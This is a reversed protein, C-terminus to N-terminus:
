AADVTEVPGGLIVPQPPLPPEILEGVFALLEDVRLAEQNATRRASGPAVTGVFAKRVPRDFRGDDLANTLWGRASAAANLDGLAQGLESLAVLAREKAREQEVDLAAAWTEAHARITETADMAAADAALSLASATRQASDVKQRTKAVATSISPASQGSRIARAAAEVDAAEAVERDHQAATLQDRAERSRVGLAVTEAVATEVETPRALTPVTEPNLWVTSM